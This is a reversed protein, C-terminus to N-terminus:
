IHILSLKLLVEKLDEQNCIYAYAKCIYQVLTKPVSANVAYMSMHDGNYTCWGLALESLDGTGVVLGNAMNAADMLIYTRMRAQANEYTTDLHTYSVPIHQCSKHFDHM